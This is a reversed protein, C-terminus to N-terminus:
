RQFITVGDVVTRRCEPITASDATLRPLAVVTDGERVLEIRAAEHREPSESVSESADDGAGRWVAFTAPFGPALVGAHPEGAARWGGKTYAAFAARPSLAHGPEHPSIAALVGRWPDLPTVPSDSGFALPVGIGAFHSFPNLQRARAAGLRQRYMGVGGWAADFAPQSSVLLGYEVLQRWHEPQVFEAHELRSGSARLAGVGVQTAALAFGRLVEDLAGDGIVHFGAPIGEVVCDCLHEAIEPASLYNTGRHPADAYPKRLHATRSGFSGDVSLDGGAVGAGLQRAKAAAGLEAWLGFVRPGPETAALELLQTFDAETSIVPGGCEHLAAIGLSAAHRRVLRHLERRRDPDLDRLAVTRILDHARGRVPLVPHHGTASELGPVARRLATTVLASHVDVRSLYVPAGASAADLEATTPLRTDAWATEEWGHGWVLETAPGSRDSVHKRVKALLEDRSRCGALNLGTLMLGTDTAHVHADVFAPTVLAGGLDVSELGPGPPPATDSDGLWTIVGHEVLMATAMPDSPSYLRGNRYLVRGSGAPDQEPSAPPESSPMATVRREM